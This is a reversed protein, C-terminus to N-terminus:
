RWTSRGSGEEYMDSELADSAGTPAGAGRRPRRDDGPARAAGARAPGGGRDRLRVALRRRPEVDGPVPRPGAHGAGARWRRGDPEPVRESLLDVGLHDM